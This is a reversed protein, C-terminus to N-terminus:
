SLGMYSLEGHAILKGSSDGIVDVEFFSVTRGARRVAAHAVLDEEVGAGTYHVHLDITVLRQPVKGPEYQTVLAGVVATDILTATAGGHIIGAPQNLEPRYPLRMRSYNQKVEELQLGLFSPFPATSLFNKISEEFAKDIPKFDQPRIM